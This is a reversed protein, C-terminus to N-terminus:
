ATIKGSQQIEIKFDDPNALKDVHCSHNITMALNISPTAVFVITQPVLLMFLHIENVFRTQNTFQILILTSINPESM